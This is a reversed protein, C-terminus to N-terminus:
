DEERKCRESLSQLLSKTYVGRVVFEAGDTMMAMLAQEGREDVSTVDVLDVVSKRGRREDRRRRWSSTLEDVMQGALRGELIWTDQEPTSRIAIRLMTNKAELKM